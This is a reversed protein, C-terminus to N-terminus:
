LVSLLFFYAFVTIGRRSSYVEATQPLIAQYIKILIVVLSFDDGGDYDYDDTARYDKYPGQGGWM